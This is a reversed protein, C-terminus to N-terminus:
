TSLCPCRMSVSHACLFRRRRVSVHLDLWSYARRAVFSAELLYHFQRWEGLHIWPLGPTGMRGSFETLLGALYDYITGPEGPEGVPNILPQSDSGEGTIVLSPDGAAWSACHGPVDFELLIMIGREWAYAAIAKQDDVSYVAVSAYPGGNEPATFNPYASSELPWAPDDTAHFHLLNSKTVQMSDLVDLVKQVTLFNFSVDILVGRVPFRPSDYVKVPANRILYSSADDPGQWVVLQAFSELGRLAGWQNPAAITAPTGDAPVTLSYSENVGYALDAVASVVIQLSSLQIDSGGDDPIAAPGAFLIISKTYRDIAAPLPAPCNNCSISFGPAIRLLGMGESMSVPQPWIESPIVPASARASLVLLSSVLLLTSRPTM